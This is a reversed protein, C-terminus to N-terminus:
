HTVKVALGINGLVEAVAECYDESGECVKVQGTNHAINTLNRAITINCKIAKSIQDAVEDFSHCFCNFLVVKSDSSGNYPSRLRTEPVFYKSPILSAVAKSLSIFIWRWKRM